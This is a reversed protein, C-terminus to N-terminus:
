TPCFLNSCIWISSVTYVDVHKVSKLILVFEIYIKLIMTLSTVADECIVTEFSPDQPYFTDDKKKKKEVATFRLPPLHSSRNGHTSMM